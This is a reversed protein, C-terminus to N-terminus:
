CRYSDCGVQSVSLFGSKWVATYATDVQIAPLGNSTHRFAQHFGSLVQAGGPLDQANALGFFRGRAGLPTYKKSPEERLM